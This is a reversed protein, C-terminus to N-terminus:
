SNVGARLWGEIKAQLAYDDCRRAIDSLNGMDGLKKALEASDQDQAVSASATLVIAVVSGAFMANLRAVM